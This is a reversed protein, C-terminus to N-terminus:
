TYNRLIGVHIVFGSSEKLGDILSHDPMRWVRFPKLFARLWDAMVIESRLQQAIICLTAKERPTTASLQCIDTCTRIFPDILSENYICDCAIVADLPESVDGSATGILAPLESVSSSEWDLAIVGINNRVNGSGTTDPATRHYKVKSPSKADLSNDHINQKLLRFVYNQDTALFRRIRPALTLAVLGSVGSGLELVVSNQDLVSSKFLINEHSAIWESFAPTIKWVVAGTTGGERDSLLLTPSQKIDLDRGAVTIGLNTAKADVFGLNQSPIEQSFLLFTEEEADEIEAGLASVFDAFPMPLWPSCISAIKM